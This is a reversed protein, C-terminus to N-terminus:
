AVRYYTIIDSGGDNLTMSDYSEWEVTYIGSQGGFVSSVLDGDVQYTGATLDGFEWNDENFNSFDVTNGKPRVARLGAYGSEVYKSYLYWTGDVVPETSVWEGLIFAAYDVAEGNGDDIVPLDQLIPAPTIVVPAQETPAAGCACAMVALVAVLVMASLRKKLLGNSGSFM